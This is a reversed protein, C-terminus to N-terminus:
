QGYTENVWHHYEEFTKGKLLIQFNPESIDIMYINDPLNLTKAKDMREHYELLDDLDDFKSIVLVSLEGLNIIELDFDKILYNEFNFKAVEFLLDNQSVSDPSFALLLLHPISDNDIFDAKDISSISDTNNSITISDKRVTGKTMRGTQVTRGEHIGKVIYSALPSVDSSPYTTTLQELADRFSDTDGDIVFSLAHLFLFKPMLKSSPWNQQVWQYNSHVTASENAIYADYTACYLSDEHAIMDRMRAIYDPDSSEIVALVTADDKPAEVIDGSKLVRTQSIRASSQIKTNKARLSVKRYSSSASRIDGDEEQLQAILFLTRTRQESTLWSKNAENLYGIITANEAQKQLLIEAQALSFEYRLQPKLKLYEPLKSLTAQNSYRKQPIVLNLEAEAEYVFGQVAHCRAAWIHCEAVVQPMLKFLRATYSFTALAADFDGNYFHAKGNLLWANHIYPNNNNSRTQVAKKSKEIAREFLANSAPEKQGVLRYVPHLAIRQSYDDDDTKEMESLGSKYAEEGNFLINYKTTLGHMSRTFLTNSKCSTLAIVIICIVAINIYTPKNHM